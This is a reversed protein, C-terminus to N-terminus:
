ALASAAYQTTFDLGQQAAMDATLQVLEYPAAGSWQVLTECM